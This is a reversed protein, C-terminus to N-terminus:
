RDSPPLRDIPDRSRMRCPCPWAHSHHAVAIQRRVRRGANGHIPTATLRDPPILRRRRRRRHARSASSTRQTANVNFRYDGNRKQAAAIAGRLLRGATDHASDHTVCSIAHHPPCTRDSQGTRRRNSLIVHIVLHAIPSLSFAISIPRIIPCPSRFDDLSRVNLWM